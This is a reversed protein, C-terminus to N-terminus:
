LAFAVKPDHIAPGAPQDEGTFTSLFPLLVKATGPRFVRNEMLAM